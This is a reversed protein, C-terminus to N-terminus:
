YKIVRFNPDSDKIYCINKSKYEVFNKELQIGSYVINIKGILSISFRVSKVKLVCTDDTIISGLKAKANKDVYKCRLAKIKNDREVEILRAETQYEEFTM